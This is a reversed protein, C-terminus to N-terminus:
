VKDAKDRKDSEYEDKLRKVEHPNATAEYRAAAYCLMNVVDDHPLSNAAVEAARVLRRGAEHLKHQYDNTEQIYGDMGIIRIRASALEIDRAEQVLDRILTAQHPKGPEYEVPWIVERAASLRAILWDADEASYVMVTGYVESGYERNDDIEIQINGSRSMGSLPTNTRISVEVSNIDRTAKNVM